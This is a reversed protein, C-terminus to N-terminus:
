RRPDATTAMKQQEGLALVTKRLDRYKAALEYKHNEAFQWMRKELEDALENNKGELMLRVDRVAEQM